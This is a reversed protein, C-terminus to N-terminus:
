ALQAPSPPPPVAAAAVAPARPPVPAPPKARPLAMRETKETKETKETPLLAFINKPAVFAKDARRRAAALLDRNVKLGGGAESRIAETRSARGTVYRLPVRQPEPADAVVWIAVGAWIGLLICLTLWQARKTM